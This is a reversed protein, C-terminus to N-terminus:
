FWNRVLAWPYIYKSLLLTMNTLYQILIYIPFVFKTLSVLSVFQFRCIACSTKLLVSLSFLCVCLTPLPMTKYAPFVLVWFIFTPPDFAWPWDSLYLSVRAGLCLCFDSPIGKTHWTALPSVTCWELQFSSPLPGQLAYLWWTLGGWSPTDWRNLAFAYHFKVHHHSALDFTPLKELTEVLKVISDYDQWCFSLM